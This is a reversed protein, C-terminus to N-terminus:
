IPTTLPRPTANCRCVGDNRILRAQGIKLLSRFVTAVGALWAVKGRVSALSSSAILWKISSSEFSTFGRRFWNLRGHRSGPRDIIFALYFLQLGSSQNPALFM